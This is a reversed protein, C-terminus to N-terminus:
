EDAREEPPLLVDDIVHIIGNGCLIDAKVVEADNVKVKGGDVSVTLERGDVSEVVLSRVVSSRGALVGSPLLDPVVHYTLIEKLRERSKPRLLEAVKKEGLKEFAEDNPAFLTFPGEGKLVQDLEATLVAKLLTTFTGAAMATDVIDKAPQWTCAVWGAARRRAAKRRCRRGYVALPIAMPLAMATWIPNRCARM